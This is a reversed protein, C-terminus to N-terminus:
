SAPSSQPVAAAVAALVFGHTFGTLTDGVLSAAAVSSIAAAGLSAGFEHFTSVIGSTIGAEHPEVQGLATAMMILFTGTAVPRRGLLALNM